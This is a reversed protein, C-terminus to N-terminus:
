SPPSTSETLTNLLLWHRTTYQYVLLLSLSYPLKANARPAGGNDKQKEKLQLKPVPHGLYNM